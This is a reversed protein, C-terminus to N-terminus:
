YSGFTANQLVKSLLKTSNERSYKEFNSNKSVGNFKLYKVIDDQNDHEFCKGASTENIIKAADSKKPGIMVIKSMSRIYEFLKGTIIGENMKTNPIVLLLFDSNCMEQIAVKHEKYSKFNVFDDFNQKIIYNKIDHHISGILNIEFINRDKNLKSVAHFFNIPNQSKTMTGIYSIKIKKSKHRDLKKFDEEDYGNHIVHFPKKFYESISSSVTIRASASNIVSNELFRDIKETIWLRKNEFNYFRDTWPDRFDAVWPIGNSLSLNKAILHATYPPASSFIAEINNDNIIQNGKRVADPYWGIRGDPVIFNVRVWRALKIFIGDENSSSLQHTPTNKKRNLLNLIKHFSFSASKVVKLNLVEKSLSKDLVPFDGNLVTLIIPEWGYKPLYKCYKLVRQVGPGGSPPWYYTVVLVKKLNTINKKFDLLYM